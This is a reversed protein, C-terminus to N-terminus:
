YVGLHKTPSGRQPCWREQVTMWTASFYLADGMVWQILSEPARLELKWSQTAYVTEQGLLWPRLIFTPVPSNREFSFWSFITLMIPMHLYVCTSASLWHLDLMLLTYHGMGKVRAGSLCSSQLNLVLRLYLIFGHKLIFLCIKGLFLINLLLTM